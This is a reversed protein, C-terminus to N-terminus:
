AKIKVGSNQFFDKDVCMYVGESTICVNDFENFIELRDYQTRKLNEIFAMLLAQKMRDPSSKEELFALPTDLDMGIVRLDKFWSELEKQPIVAHQSMPTRGVPASEFYGENNKSIETTSTIDNLEPPEALQQVKGLYTDVLEEKSYDAFAISGNLEQIITLIQHYLPHRMARYGHESLDFKFNVEDFYIKFVVPSPEILPMGESTYSTLFYTTSLEDIQKWLPKSQENEETKEYSVFTKTWMKYFIYVVFVCFFVIGTTIIGAGGM